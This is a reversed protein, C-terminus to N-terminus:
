SEAEDEAREYRKHRPHPYEDGYDSCLGERVLVEGFDSGDPLRVYALLRGYGGTEFAGDDAGTELRVVEGKALDSARRAARLGEPIQEACTEGGERGERRCKPNKHSEPCDIGLIRIRIESADGALPRVRLTDGDLVDVVYAKQGEELDPREGSEEAEASETEDGEADSDSQEGGHCHREGQTENWTECNSECSHCGSADTGGPHSGARKVPGVALVIGAAALLYTRIRM